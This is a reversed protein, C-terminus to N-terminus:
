EMYVENNGEREEVVLVEGSLQESEVFNSCNDYDYGRNAEKNYNKQLLRGIKNFAVELPGDGGTKSIAVRSSPKLSDNLNDNLSMNSNNMLLCIPTVIDNFSTVSNVKNNLNRFEQVQSTKAFDRVSEFLGYTRSYQSLKNIGKFITKLTNKEEEVEILIAEKLFELYNLIEEGMNVYHICKM